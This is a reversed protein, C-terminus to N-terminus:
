CVKVQINDVDVTEVDKIVSDQSPSVKEEREEVDVHESENGSDEKGFINDM